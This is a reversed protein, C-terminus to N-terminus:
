NQDPQGFSWFVVTIRRRILTPHKSNALDQKDVLHHRSFDGIVNDRIDDLIKDSTVGIFIIFQNQFKSDRPIKM